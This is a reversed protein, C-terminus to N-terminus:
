GSCPIGDVPEFGAEKLVDDCTYGPFLDSCVCDYYCWGGCSKTLTCEFNGYVNGGAQVAPCAAQAVVRALTLTLLIGLCLLGLRLKMSKM